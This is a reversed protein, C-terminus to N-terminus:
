ASSSYMCFSIVIHLINVKEQRLLQRLPKVWRLSRVSKRGLAYNVHESGNAKLQKELRGGGSIVISRHGTKVLADALELTGREIGGGELRPLMQVVTLPKELANSM